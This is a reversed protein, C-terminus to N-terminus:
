YPRHEKARGIFERRDAEALGRWPLTLWPILRSERWSEYLLRGRWDDGPDIPAPRQSSDISEVHHDMDSKLRRLAALVRHVQLM